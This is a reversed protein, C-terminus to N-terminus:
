SGGPRRGNLPITRRGSENKSREIRVLRTNLNTDRWKLHKLEIGRCTTSAALVAACYAVMWRPNTAATEFLRGKEESILAQGVNSQEPYKTVDEALFAWRKAKKLMRRLVSIEMNITRGSVGDGVRDQQYLAIAEATIRSLPTEGLRKKLPVLREKEFQITREAVRKEREKIYQDAAASFQLRAYAKGAPAAVKGSQIKAVLEKELSRAERHDTTKLSERYRTSCVTVDAWWTKGRKWLAM